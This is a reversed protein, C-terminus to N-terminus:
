LDQFMLIVFIYCKHHIPHLLRHILFVLVNYEDIKKWNETIQEGTEKVTMGNWASKSITSVASFGKALWPMTEIMTGGTKKMENPFMDILLDGLINGGETASALIAGVGLSKMVIGVASAAKGLISSSVGIKSAIGGVLTILPSLLSGFGSLIGKTIASAMGTAIQPGFLSIGGALLQTPIGEM